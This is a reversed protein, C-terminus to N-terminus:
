VIIGQEIYSRITAKKMGLLEEFVYQNAEGLMPSAKWAAQRGNKFKIPYTDTQIEGLVPHNLSTFFRNASLQPDNALDGANQVVGAAIGAQQLGDAVKEATQGATWEGMHRDLIKKHKMRGALSSFDHAESWAPNGLVGCLSQWEDETFVAIVCWRDEGSCKYCGYPAAPRNETDNGKPMIQHHNFGADILAPGITTCTAEYESLDIYQGQGCRDRHELAALISVAGYLGSVMDAYAYGFGMPADQTYSTLYTLGALSQLTPGYAVFDKWPGDQGTGSMSLMILRENSKKLTAYDLDWNSMVRRSFNEVVIDSIQVLKLFIERAEHYDMDLTISRKNRNWACFYPATNSEIGTAMKASQIKIVEAGFDALM